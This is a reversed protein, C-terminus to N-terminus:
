YKLGNIMHYHLDVKTIIIIFTIKSDNIWYWQVNKYLFCKKDLFNEIYEREIKIQSVQCKTCNKKLSESTKQNNITLFTFFARLHRKAQM